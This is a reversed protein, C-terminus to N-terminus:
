SCGGASGDDASAGLLPVRSVPPHGLTIGLVSAEAHRFSTCADTDNAQSAGVDVGAVTPGDSTDLVAGASAIAGAAGHNVGDSDEGNDIRHPLVAVCPKVDSTSNIVVPAAPCTVGNVADIVPGLASLAGSWGAPGAGLLEMGMVSVASWHPDMDSSGSTSSSVVIGNLNVSSAQAGNRDAGATGFPADARASGLAFGMAATGAAVVVSARKFLTSRM